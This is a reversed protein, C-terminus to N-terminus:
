TMYQDTMSPLRLRLKYLKKTAPQSFQGGMTGGALSFLSATQAVDHVPRDHFAAQAATTLV